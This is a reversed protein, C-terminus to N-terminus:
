RTWFRCLLTHRVRDLIQLNFQEYDFMYAEHGDEKVFLIHDVWPFVNDRIFGYM